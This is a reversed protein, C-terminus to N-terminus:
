VPSPPLPFSPPISPCTAYGVPRLRSPSIARTKGARMPIGRDRAFLVDLRRNPEVVQESLVRSKSSSEYIYPEWMPQVCEHAPTRFRRLNPQIRGWRRARHEAKSSPGWSGGGEDDERAEQEKRGRGLVRLQQWRTAYYRVRGESLCVKRSLKVKRRRAEIQERSRCDFISSSWGRTLKRIEGEGDEEQRTQGKVAMLQCGEGSHDKRRGERKKRCGVRVSCRPRFRFSASGGDRALSTWRAKRARRAAWKAASSSRTLSTSVSFASSLIASLIGGAFLTLGVDEDQKQRDTVQARRLLPRRGRVHGLESSAAVQRPSEARSWLGRVLDLEHSCARHPTSPDTPRPLSSGSSTPKAESWRM